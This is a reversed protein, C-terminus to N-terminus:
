GRNRGGVGVIKKKKKLFARHVLYHKVELDLTTHEISQALWTGGASQFSKMSNGRLIGVSVMGFSLIWHFLGPPKPNRLFM